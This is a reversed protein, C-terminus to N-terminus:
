SVSATITGALPSSASAYSKKDMPGALYSQRGAEVATKMARAMLVPDLAQAIATNMLVGDIGMEMAVAADSARGVGADVIVPVTTVAERIFQINLPNKIGQGSGIPAALPMVAAAGADELRKAVIPDDSTYALVTFGEDVLQKTAELTAQTDPYLTKQDGIVEVKILPTELVERALRAVRMADAATSCGATNPLIAMGSPIFNWFSTAAGRDNLNVRRIAVTVMEAGSAALAEKMLALSAYKGTGVILRSAYEKGAIVFPKDVRSM